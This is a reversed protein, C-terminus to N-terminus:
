LQFADDSCLNVEGMRVLFDDFEVDFQAHLQAARAALYAFSTDPLPPKFAFVIINAQQEPPLQLVHVHFAAALAFYYNPYNEDSGWLNFVAVGGPRLMDYCAQYFAPTVCRAVVKHADYVDVLLVDQSAPHALVYDVGDGVVVQLRADDPPLEFWSRAAEVVEPHIEVATLVGELVHHHIFKALSGGGLGILALQRPQAHFLLFGLMARTYELLLTNPAQRKMASQIATGGLHLYRIERTDSVQVLPVNFKQPCLPFNFYDQTM